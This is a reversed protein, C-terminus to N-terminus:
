WCGYGGYGYGGYPSYYSAVSIGGYGLGGYGYGGYGYGGYGLGGYGLGGYGLGYGLGGYGLGYGLGGYGLGGYGLGISLGFSRYGYGGFGGYGFGRGFGGYGLGYGRGFGGYGYGFGRGFGGFGHHFGGYHRWSQVPGEADMESSRTVKAQDLAAIAASRAVSKAAPITATKPGFERDLEGALLPSGLFLLAALCGLTRMM